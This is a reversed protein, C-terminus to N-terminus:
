AGRDRTANQGRRRKPLRKAIGEILFTLALEFQEDPSIITPAAMWSTLIPYSDEAVLARTAAIAAALEDTSKVGYREHMVREDTAQLAAGFIHQDLLAAYTVAEAPTAGQRTLVALIHETRRMM